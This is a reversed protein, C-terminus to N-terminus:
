VGIPVRTHRPLTLIHTQGRPLAKSNDQVPYICGFVQCGEPLYWGQPKALLQSVNLDHFNGM